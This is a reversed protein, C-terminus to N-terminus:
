TKLQVAWFYVRPSTNEPVHNKLRTRQYLQSAHSPLFSTLWVASDLLGEVSTPLEFGVPLRQPCGTRLINWFASCSLSALAECIDTGHVPQNLGWVLAAPLPWPLSEPGFPLPASHSILLTLPASTPPHPACHRLLQSQLWCSKKAIVGLMQITFWHFLSWM